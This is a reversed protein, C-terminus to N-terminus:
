HAEKPSLYSSLGELGGKLTYVNDFGIHRLATAAVISRGGFKCVVMVTKDTPIRELNEPQFLQDMPITLSNPLTMAYFRTEAPTRVDLVVFEKGEKVSTVFADPMMFHLSKSVEAGAMPTFFEAYSKAMEVDYAWGVSSGSLYIGVSLLSTLTKKVKMM